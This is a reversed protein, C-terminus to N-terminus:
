KHVGFFHMAKFEGLKKDISNALERQKFWKGNAFAIGTDTTEIILDKEDTFLYEVHLYRAFDQLVEMQTNVIMNALSEITQDATDNLLEKLIGICQAKTM